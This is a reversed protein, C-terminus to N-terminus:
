ARRARRHQRELLHGHRACRSARTPVSLRNLAWAPLAFAVAASCLTEAAGLALGDRRRSVGHRRAARNRSELSLTAVHRDDQHRVTRHGRADRRPGGHLEPEGPGEGGAVHALNALAAASRPPCCCASAHNARRPVGAGLARAPAIRDARTRLTLPATTADVMCFAGGAPAERHPRVPAPLSEDAPRRHMALEAGLTQLALRADAGRTTTSPLPSGFAVTVPYPVRM